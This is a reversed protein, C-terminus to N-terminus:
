TPLTSPKPPRVCMSIQSQRWRSRTTAVDAPKSSIAEAASLGKKRLVTEAADLDGDAENLAAKCDMMGANTKERLAKILELTVEPM